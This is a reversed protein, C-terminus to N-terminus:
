DLQYQRTLYHAVADSAALGIMEHDALRTRLDADAGGMLVGKGAAELMELDNLGDGFALVDGFTYGNRKLIEALANRKCVGSAMVEFCTDLSYTMSLQAGYHAQAEAALPELAQRCRASFFIKQVCGPPIRDLDCLSYRFGSHRHYALLPPCERAMYWSDGQYVSTLVGSHKQGLSILGRVAAPPIDHQVILQGQPCHARAGNSTVLYMPLGLQGRIANVDMYHRGTALIFLIGRRCLAQIVRCSTPSFQHDTNLLTGDLDSVVVPYM